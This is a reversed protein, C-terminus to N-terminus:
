AHSRRVAELTAVAAAGVLLHMVALTVGTGTDTDGTLPGIASLVALAGAVIQAVRLFVPKWRALLVAVGVGVLLPVISAFLVDPAGVEDDKGNLKLVLSAGAADAILLVILNVVATIVAAGLLTQWTRIRRRGGALPAAAVDTDTM